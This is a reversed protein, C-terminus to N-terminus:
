AFCALDEWGHPISISDGLARLKVREECAQLARTVQVSRLQDLTSQMAFLDDLAFFHDSCTRVWTPCDKRRGGLHTVSRGEIGGENWSRARPQDDLEDAPIALVVHRAQRWADQVQDDSSLIRIRSVEKRTLKSKLEEVLQSLREPNRNWVWLESDLLFPAVSQAIQGAGLLFVPGASAGEMQSQERIVKRVLSGYSAGGWNQIYRSRIEKTDEFLRSLLSPFFTGGFDKTSLAIRWAEKIQGFIDTEGLIESELGSALRLLFLYADQGSYSQQQPLWETLERADRAQTDFIWLWRQCTDMCFGASSAEVLSKLRPDFGPEKKKSLHLVGLNEFQM